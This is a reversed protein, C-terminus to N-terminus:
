NTIMQAYAASGSRDGNSIPISPTIGFSVESGETHNVLTGFTIRDKPTPTLFSTWEALLEHSDRKIFLYSPSDFTNRTYTLDINMTWISTAHIAYGLDAFGRKWADEGVTGRVFSATQWNTFSSMFSLNKYNMGVYAGRSRDRITVGQM